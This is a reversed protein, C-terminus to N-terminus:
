ASEMSRFDKIIIDDCPLRGAIKSGPEVVRWFPVVDTKSKGSNMEELSLESVIRLFISTTVPCTAVAGNKEALEDRMREIARTEGDPIDAVYSAIDKPSSIYMRSGAKIGCFSKELVVTRPPKPNNFRKTWDVTKKPKAPM